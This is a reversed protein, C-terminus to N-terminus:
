VHTIELKGNHTFYIQHYYTTVNSVQKDILKSFSFTSTNFKYLAKRAQIIYFKVGFYNIFKITNPIDNNPLKYSTTNGNNLKILVLGYEYDAIAIEQDKENYYIDQPTQLEIKQMKKYVFNSEKSKYDIRFIGANLISLFIIGNSAVISTIPVQNQTQKNNSNFFDLNIDDVYNDTNLNIGILGRKDSVIFLMRLENDITIVQADEISKIKDIYSNFYKYLGDRTLIYFKNKYAKIDLIITNLLSNDLSFNVKDNNIYKTKIDVQSINGELSSTYLQSKYIFLSTIIDNM